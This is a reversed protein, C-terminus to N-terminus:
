KLTGTACVLVDFSMAPLSKDKFLITNTEPDVREVEASVVKSYKTIKSIPIEIRQAWAGGLVSARISGIKHHLVSRRDIVTLRIKGAKAAADLSHALLGGAYGCGLIVVHPTSSPMNFKHTYGGPAANGIGSISVTEM